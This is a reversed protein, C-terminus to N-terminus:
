FPRWSLKEREPLALALPLPMSAFRKSISESGFHAPAFLNGVVPVFWYMTRFHVWEETQHTNLAQRVATIDVATILRGEQWFNRLLGIMEHALDIQAETGSIHLAQGRLLFKAGSQQALTKLNSEQEGALAIASSSNPLELIVTQAM